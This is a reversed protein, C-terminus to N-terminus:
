GRLKKPPKFSNIGIFAKFNNKGDYAIITNQENM